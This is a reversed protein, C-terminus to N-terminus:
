AATIAPVEIEYRFGVKQRIVEIPVIAGCTSNKQEHAYQVMTRFRMIAPVHSDNAHFAWKQLRPLDIVFLRDNDLFHYILVDAKSKYFWGPSYRGQSLNSHLELFLNGTFRREAKFEVVLVNGTTKSVAVGDGLSQFHHNERGSPFLIFNAFLSRVVPEIRSWSEAEIRQNEEFSGM